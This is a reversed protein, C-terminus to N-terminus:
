LLGMLSDGRQSDARGVRKAGGAPAPAARPQAKVVVPKEEEVASASALLRDFANVADDQRSKSSINALMSGEQMTVRSVGRNVVKSAKAAGPLMQPPPMMNSAAPVNESAAEFGVQSGFSVTKSASVAAKPSNSKRWRKKKPPSKSPSGGSSSGLSSRSTNADSV